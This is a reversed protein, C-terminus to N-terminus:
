DTVRVLEPPVARAILEIAAKPSKVCVLVQPVLTAGAPLQVIETVKEGVAVPFRVPVTEMASLAAPEGCDMARLPVPEDTVIFVEFLLPMLMLEPPDPVAM